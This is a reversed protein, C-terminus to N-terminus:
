DVEPSCFVDTENWHKRIRELEKLSKKPSRAALCNVILNVMAVPAVHSYGFTAGTVPAVLTLDCVAALANAASDTIAVTRAGRRKAYAAVDRVERFVRQSCIAVLVDGSGLDTVEIQKSIGHGVLGHHEKGLVSFYLDFLHVAVQSGSIAASYIKRGGEIATVVRELVGEDLVSQMNVLNQLDRAISERAVSSEQPGSLFEKFMEYPTITQRFLRELELKMVPFGSYGLKQAFRTIASASVGCSKALQPGPLFAARSLTQHIVEAIHREQATLRAKKIRDTFNGKM